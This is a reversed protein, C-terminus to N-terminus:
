FGSSHIPTLLTTGANRDVIAQNTWPEDLKGCGACGCDGQGFLKKWGCATLLDYGRKRAFWVGGAAAAILIITKTTM